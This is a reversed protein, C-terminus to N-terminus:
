PVVQAQTVMLIFLGTHMAWQSNTKTVTFYKCVYATKVYAIEKMGRKNKKILSGEGCMQM